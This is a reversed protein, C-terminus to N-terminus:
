IEICSSFLVLLSIFGLSSVYNGPYISRQIICTVAELSLPNSLTYIGKVTLQNEMIVTVPTIKLFQDFLAVPIFGMRERSVQIVNGVIVSDVTEPSVKGASLAARAAFETLDTATFDKLLGGFAGFPTRKAAVIFVGIALLSKYAIM